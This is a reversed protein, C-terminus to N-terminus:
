WSGDFLRAPGSRECVGAGGRKVVVSRVTVESGGAITLNVFESRLGWWDIGCM